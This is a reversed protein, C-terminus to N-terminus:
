LGGCVYVDYSSSSCRSVSLWSVHADEIGTLGGGPMGLYPSEHLDHPGRPPMLVDPRSVPAYDSRRSDYANAFSRQLVDTALIHHRESQTVYQQHHPQYPNLALYPDTNVHPHPYDVPQQPVYPPPFYPPQFDTTTPTHRLRHTNAFSAPGGVGSGGLPELAGHAATLDRREQFVLLSM